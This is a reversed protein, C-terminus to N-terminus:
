KPSVITLLTDSISIGQNILLQLYMFLYKFATSWGHSSSPTSVSLGRCNYTQHMQHDGVNHWQRLNTIGHLLFYFILPYYKHWGYTLAWHDFPNKPWFNPSPTQIWALNSLWLWFRHWSSLWTLSTTSSAPTLPESPEIRIQARNSM